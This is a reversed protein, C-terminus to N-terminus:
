ASCLDRREWTPFLRTLRRILRATGCRPLRAASSLVVTAVGHFQAVVNLSLARVAALLEDGPRVVVLEAAIGAFPISLSILTVLVLRFSQRV